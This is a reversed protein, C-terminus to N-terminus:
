AKALTQVDINTAAMEGKSSTFILARRRGTGPIYSRDAPVADFRERVCSALHAGAAFVEAIRRRAHREPAQRDAERHSTKQRHCKSTEEAASGREVASSSM